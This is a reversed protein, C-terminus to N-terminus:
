KQPLYICFEAGEDPHGTATIIGEHNEVIKKVIALGIGTGKYKEKPHLRQFLGFIKDNYQPDFGIGNDRYVIRCYETQPNLTVDKFECGKKNTCSINIYSSTGPKAFKLSNSILNHLVQRFHLPIINIKCLDHTEINVFGRQMEESFDESVDDVLEKLSTSEFSTKDYNTTSYALLDHILTHMRRASNQMRILLDKGTDTLNNYESEIIRSTIMQIKRVPEQLDHSSIHAFSQLENNMKGLSSNKMELNEQYSLIMKEHDKKETLDTVIIGITPLTPQLSTLSVYVPIIKNNGILSVEGKAHGKLSDKFLGGFINKSDLTIFNSIEQGIVKDYNLGLLQCFYKNTYLIIGEDSVNVAGENFQEILLRYAYDSSELTFIEQKGNSSIAFADVEGSKIANILQEAEQLKEELLEIKRTIIKNDTTDDM